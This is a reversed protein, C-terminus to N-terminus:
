RRVHLVCGAAAHLVIVDIRGSIGGAPEPVNGVVSALEGRFLKQRVEVEIEGLEAAVTKAGAGLCEEGRQGQELNPLEQLGPKTETRSAIEVNFTFQSHSPR